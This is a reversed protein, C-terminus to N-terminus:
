VVRYPALLLQATLSLPRNLVGTTSNERNEYLDAAMKLIAQIVDAPVEGPAVSYTVTYTPLHDFDLPLTRNITIGKVYEAWRLSVHPLDAVDTIFGRVSTVQGADPPLEFTELVTFTTELTKSVYHRGTFQEARSRAAKLQQVLLREETQDQLDLRLHLRLLELDVPEVGAADLVRTVPM